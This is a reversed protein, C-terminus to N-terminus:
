CAQTCTRRKREGKRERERERCGEGERKRRKERYIMNTRKVKGERMMLELGRFVRLSGCGFISGM